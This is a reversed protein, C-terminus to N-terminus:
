NVKESSTGGYHQKNRKPNEFLKSNRICSFFNTRLFSAGKLTSKLRSGHTCTAAADEPAKGEPRM